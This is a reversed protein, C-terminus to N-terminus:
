VSVPGEVGRRPPPLVFFFALCLQGMSWAPGRHSSRLSLLSPSLSGHRLRCMAMGRGVFKTHPTPPPPYPAMGCGVCLWAAASVILTPHSSSIILSHQHCSLFDVNM